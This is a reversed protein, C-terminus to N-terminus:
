VSTLSLAVTIGLAAAAICSILSLGLYTAAMAPQGYQWLQLAELSFASFTTLGGLFGTMLFLRWQPGLLAKDVLLVFCFGILFCGLINVLLTGTPFRNASIPVLYAVVAYRGMAGLAGGLAVAIWQM